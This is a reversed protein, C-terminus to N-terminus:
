GNLPKPQDITFGANYTTHPNADLVVSGTTPGPSCAYAIAIAFANGNGDLTTNVQKGSGLYQEDAGYWMIGSACRDYLAPDSFTVEQGATGSVFHAYFIVDAGGYSADEIESSPYAKLGPTLGNGTAVTVDTHASKYPYYYLTASIRYSGPDCSPGGWVVATGNGNDDLDVYFDPGTGWGAVTGGNLTSDAM